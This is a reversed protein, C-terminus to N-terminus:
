QKKWGVVLVVRPVLLFSASCLSTFISFLVFTIEKGLIASHVLYLICDLSYCPASGDTVIKFCLLRARPVSRLLTHTQLADERGQGAGDRVVPCPVQRQRVGDESGAGHSPLVRGRALDNGYPLCMRRADVYFTGRSFCGGVSGPSGAGSGQAGQPVWAGQTRGSSLSGEKQM